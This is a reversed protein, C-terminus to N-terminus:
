RLTAGELLVAYRYGAGFDKDVVVKGTVTVVDGVKAEADTTVTIDNTGKAAVGTGDQIHLWNRGMIGGNFKVVKGRVTVTKGALTTRAAWVSEISQGGEPPAIRETVAQGASAPPHGPPMQMGGAPEGERTIQSAFYILPFDRNLSQSHFNEMPSELPVAVRDGVKVVFRSTAAWIEGESAQVKMYTYTAADMTELVPGTVVRVSAGAPASQPHSPAPAPATAPAAAPAAQATAQAAPGSTNSCSLLPACALAVGLGASTRYNL